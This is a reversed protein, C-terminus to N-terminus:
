RSNRSGDQRLLSNPTSLVLIADARERVIAAFANDYGTASRVPVPQILLELAPGAVEVAKLGPGHSPTGPDLRCCHALACSRSEQAAGPRKRKDRDDNPLVGHHKRRAARAQGRPRQRDSGRTGRINHYNDTVRKAAEAYVSSPAVIVDVNLRVLEEALDRLRDYRGESWRYEVVINQGEVWGLDRLERRFGEIGDPYVSPNEWLFGVRHVKGAPRARAMIPWAAAVGGLLSLFERRRMIWGWPEPSPMTASQFPRTNAQGAASVAPQEGCVHWLNCLAARAAAVSLQRSYCGHTIAM